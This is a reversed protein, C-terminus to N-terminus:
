IIKIKSLTTVSCKQNDYFILELFLHLCLLGLCLSGHIYLDILSLLRLNLTDAAPPSAVQLSPSYLAKQRMQACLLVKEFLERLLLSLDSAKLSVEGKGDTHASSGLRARATDSCCLGGSAALWRSSHANHPTCTSAPTMSAM